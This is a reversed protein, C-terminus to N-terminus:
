VAAGFDASEVDSVVEAVRKLFAHLRRRMGCACSLACVSEDSQSLRIADMELFRRRANLGATLSPGLPRSIRGRISLSTPHPLRTPRRRHIMYGHEFQIIELHPLRSLTTLIQSTIHYDPPLMPHFSSLRSLPRNHHTPKPLKNWSIIYTGWAQSKEM